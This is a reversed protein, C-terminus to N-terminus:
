ESSRRGVAPARPQPALKPGRDVARPGDPTTCPAGMLLRGMRSSVCCLPEYRRATRSVRLSKLPSWAPTVPGPRGSRSNDTPHEGHHARDRKSSCDRRGSLNRRVSPVHGGGDPTMVRGATQGRWRFKSEGRFLTLPVPAGGPGRATPERRDRRGKELFRGAMTPCSSPRHFVAEVLFGSPNLDLARGGGRAKTRCSREHDVVPLMASHRSRRFLAELCRWDGWSGCRGPEFADGRGRVRPLPYRLGPPGGDDVEVSGRLGFSQRRLM